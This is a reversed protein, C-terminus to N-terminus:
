RQDFEQRTQRMRNSERSLTSIQVHLARENSTEEWSWDRHNIRISMFIIAEAGADAPAM